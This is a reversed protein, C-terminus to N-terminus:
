YGKMIGHTVYLPARGTFADKALAQRILRHDSLVVTFTSGLKLTYIPGYVKTLRSFTLHPAKPDIWPLFGVVPLGRPGPPIRPSRRQLFWFVAIFSAGVLVLSTFILTRYEDM